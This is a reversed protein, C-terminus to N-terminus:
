APRRSEFYLSPEVAHPGRTSQDFNYRDWDPIMSSRHDQRRHEGFGGAGLLMELSLEDYMWKNLEGTNRPETMSRQLRTAYGRDIADIVRWRVSHILSSVTATTLRELLTEETRTTSPTTPAFEDFVDGFRNRAFEADYEGRTASQAMLGGGRERVLQDLLELVAWRYRTVNLNSRSARCEDLQRLYSRCIDELDPTSVRLIGRPKLVRYLERILSEAEPPTLHEVIHLLYAADFTEDAFPFPKRVDHHLIDSEAPPQPSLNFMVNTWERRYLAENQHAYSRGTRWIHLYARGTPTLTVRPTTTM